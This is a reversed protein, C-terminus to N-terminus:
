SLSPFPLFPLLLPCVSFNDTMFRSLSKLQGWLSSKFYPPGKLILGLQDLPWPPNIDGHRSTAQSMRFTQCSLGKQWCGEWCDKVGLPLDPLTMVADMGFVERGANDLLINGVVEWQSLAHPLTWLIFLSLYPAIESIQKVCVFVFCAYLYTHTYISM